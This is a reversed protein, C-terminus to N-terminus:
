AAAGGRDSSGRVVLETYVSQRRPAGDYRGQIRDLLMQGALRGRDAFRLDVSTLRPRCIGADRSNDMGVLAVDDPVRLGRDVCANLTGIALQDNACLIGEPAAGSDLLRTTAAYGAAHTFAEAHVVPPDADPGLGDRFGELRSTAPLTDVPGNVMAIRACGQERLHTAAERAGGRADAGVSDVQVDRPASGIVVVPVAPNRLERTLRDAFRTSALVVGDVYREGLDHMVKLEEELQGYTSEVLLRMGHERALDQLSRMAEVYAPNGIDEVVLSIQRTTRGRLSRAAANPTYDTERCAAEVRARMEPSVREDGNLVRSVSAVSAGARAAVVGITAPKTGRSTGM